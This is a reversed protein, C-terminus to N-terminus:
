GEELDTVNDLASIETLVSNINIDKHYRFILQVDKSHKEDKQNNKIKKISIGYKDLIGQIVPLTNAFDEVTLNLEVNTFHDLSGFMSYSYSLIIYVILTSIIGGLYFGAGISLGICTVALLSSATTLGKVNFGDRLITGAGIFGIGSLLQAPIRSADANAYKTSLYEGCLMILVSSIGILSHTKFGAPKNVSEREAGIIGALIFGLFLRIIAEFWFSTFISRLFDM